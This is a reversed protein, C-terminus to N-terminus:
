ELNAEIVVVVEQLHDAGSAAEEGAMEHHIEALMADEKMEIADEVIVEGRL